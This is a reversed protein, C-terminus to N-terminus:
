YKQQKASNAPSSKGGEGTGACPDAKVALWKVM